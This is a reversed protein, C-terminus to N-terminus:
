DVALRAYDSAFYILPDGDGANAYLMEAIFIDHDGATVRHTTQCEITALADDLLPVGTEGRRWALSEFRSHPLGGPRDNGDRDDIRMAFRESLERQDARLVSLGFYRSQRFVDIAAVAHGLCISILPPDLSVSSFSNVTLGHPVGNADIAGAVAVGTAFRGCARRFVESSVARPSEPLGERSM